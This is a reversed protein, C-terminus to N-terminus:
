PTRPAAEAAVVGRRGAGERGLTTRHLPRKWPSTMLRHRTKVPPCFTIWLRGPPLQGNDDYGAKPPAHQRHGACRCGRDPRVLLPNICRGIDQVVAYRLVEVKGTEPDVAVHWTRAMPLQSTSFYATTEPRARWRSLPESTVGPHGTQRPRPPPIFQERRIYKDM